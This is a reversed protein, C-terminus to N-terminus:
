SCLSRWPLAPCTAGPIQRPSSRSAPVAAGRAAPDRSQSSSRTAPPSCHAARHTHPSHDPPRRLDRRDGPRYRGPRSSSAVGIVGIGGLGGLARRVHEFPRHLRVLLVIVVRYSGDQRLLRDVPDSGVLLLREKEVQGRGMHMVGERGPFTGPSRALRLEVAVENLLQVPHDPLHGFAELLGAQASVRQDDEGTVVAAHEVQSPTIGRSRAVLDVAVQEAEFEPCPFAAVAHWENGPPGSLDFGPVTELWSMQLTSM